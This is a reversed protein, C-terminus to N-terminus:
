AGEDLLWARAPDTRFVLERDEGAAAWLYYLDHEGGAAVAHYGRNGPEGCRRPRYM